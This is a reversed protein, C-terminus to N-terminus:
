KWELWISRKLKARTIETTAM